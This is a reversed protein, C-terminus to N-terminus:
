ITKDNSEGGETSLLANSTLFALRFLGLTLLLCNFYAAATPFSLNTFFTYFGSVNFYYFITSACSIAGFAPSEAADIFNLFYFSRELIM